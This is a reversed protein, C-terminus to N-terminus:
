IEFEILSQTKIVTCEDPFTHFASVAVGDRVADVTV